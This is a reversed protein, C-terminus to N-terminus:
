SSLSSSSSSVVDSYGESLSSVKGREVIDDVNAMDYWEVLARGQGVRSHASNMWIWCEVKSMFYPSCCNLGACRVGGGGHSNNVTEHM